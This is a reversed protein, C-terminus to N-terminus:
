WVGTAVTRPLTLHLPAGHSDGMMISPKQKGTRKGFWHDAVKLLDGNAERDFFGDILEETLDPNPMGYFDGPKVLADLSPAEESLPRQLMKRPTGFTAGHEAFAEPFIPAMFDVLHTQTQVWMHFGGGDSGLRRGDQRGFFAVDPREGGNVCLGFAGAVVQAKIRYHKNLVLAGFAAFFICAREASGIDRIVGHAVQYVRNYESLPLLIRAM